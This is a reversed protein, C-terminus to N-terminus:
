YLHPCLDYRYLCLLGIFADIICQALRVYSVETQLSYIYLHLIRRMVIMIFISGAETYMSLSPLHVEGLYMIILWLATFVEMHLTHTHILPHETYHTIAGM